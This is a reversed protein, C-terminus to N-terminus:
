MNRELAKDIGDKLERGWKYTEAGTKKVVNLSVTKQPSPWRENLESRPFVYFYWEDANTVTKGEFVAFVYVEANRAPADNDLNRKGYTYPTKVGIDFINSAADGWVQSFGTSKVEITHGNYEFDVKHWTKRTTGKTLGLARGVLYEAFVARNTNMLIDSFAWQWFDVISQGACDTSEHLRPVEPTMSENPEPNVKMIEGEAVMKVEM